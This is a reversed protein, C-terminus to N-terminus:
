CHSICFPILASVEVPVIHYVNNVNGKCCFGESCLVYYWVLCLNFDAESSIRKLDSCLDSKSRMLKLTFMDKPMLLMLRRDLDHPNTRNISSNM